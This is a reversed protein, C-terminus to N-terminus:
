GKPSYPINGPDTDTNDHTGASSPKVASQQLYCGYLNRGRHCLDFIHLNDKGTKKNGCGAFRQGMECAPYTGNDYITYGIYYAYFIWDWFTFQSTNIWGYETKQFDYPWPNLDNPISFAFICVVAPIYMLLYLSKSKIKQARGTIILVFHLLIAYATSWGIAGFRRYIECIDTDRAVTSLAMGSSWFAISITLAFFVRNSSDKNNNQLTFIGTSLVITFVGFFLLSFLWSGPM